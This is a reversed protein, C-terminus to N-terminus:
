WEFLVWMNTNPGDRPDKRTYDLEGDGDLDVYFYPAGNVPKIRVMVLQGGIRYEYITEKAQEHIVVEPELPEGSSMVEPPPPADVAQNAQAMGFLLSTLAFVALGKTMKKKGLM